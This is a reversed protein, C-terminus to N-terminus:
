NTVEQPDLTELVKVKVMVKACEQQNSIDGVKIVISGVTKLDPM